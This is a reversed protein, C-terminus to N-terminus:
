VHTACLLSFFAAERRAKAIATAEANIDLRELYHVLSEKTDDYPELALLRSAAM